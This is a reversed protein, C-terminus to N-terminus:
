TSAPAQGVSLRYDDISYKNGSIHTAGWISEIITAPAPPVIDLVIETTPSTVTVLVRTETRFVFFYNLIVQLPGNLDLWGHLCLAKLSQPSAALPKLLLLHQRKQQHSLPHIQQPRQPLTQQHNLPLTQRPKLLLIPQHTLQHPIPLPKLQTLIAYSTCGGRETPCIIPSGSLIPVARM